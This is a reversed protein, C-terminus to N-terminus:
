MDNIMLHRGSIVFEESDGDIYRVNSFEGDVSRWQLKYLIIKGRADRNNLPKWAVRIQSPPGFRELSVRPSKNVPVTFLIGDCHLFNYDYEHLAHFFYCTMFM